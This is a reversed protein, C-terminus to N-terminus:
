GLMASLRESKEISVTGVLVPRGHHEISKIKARAIEERDKSDKLQLQVQDDQEKAITGVYFKGDTTEVLDYKHIREIEDVIASFKERESRYIVDPHNLRRME